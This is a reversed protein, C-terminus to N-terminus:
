YTSCIGLGFGQEGLNDSMTKGALATILAISDEKSGTEFYYVSGAPVLLRTPRPGGGAADADKDLRWGSNIVPKGVKAAVLTANIEPLANIRNRWEERSEGSNRVTDGHRLKVKGSKQDIFGPIWGANFMAPSLLIWKIQKDINQDQPLLQELMEKKGNRVCELYAVGRQGGFTFPMSKTHAFLESLLDFGQRQNFKKTELDAFVVMAANNDERMRLYETQYFIGDVHAHTEPDIGVGPRVESVFIESSRATVPIQNSCYKILEFSSIWNGIEDKSPAAPSCMVKKLPEPLNTNGRCKDPYLIGGPIIDLPAPFYIEEGICPFPGFTKLGGFRMRSKGWNPDDKKGRSTLHESERERDIEPYKGYLASLMASHFKSPLPWYSGNGTSSGGVPRADRFYLVDRPLIKMQHYSM